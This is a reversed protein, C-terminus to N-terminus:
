FYLSLREKLHDWSLASGSAINWLFVIVLVPFKKDHHFLPREWGPCRGQGETDSWCGAIGQSPLHSLLSQKNTKNKSDPVTQQSEPQGWSDLWPQGQIGWSKVEWKRLAQVVPTCWWAQASVLCSTSRTSEGCCFSVCSADRHVSHGLKKKRM